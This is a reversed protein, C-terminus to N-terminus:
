VILSLDAQLSGSRLRAPKSGTGIDFILIRKKAERPLLLFFLFGRVQTRGVKDTHGVEINM